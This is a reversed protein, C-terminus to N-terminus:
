QRRDSLLYKRTEKVKLRRERQIKLRRKKILARVKRADEDRQM